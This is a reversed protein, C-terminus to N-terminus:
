KRFSRQIKAKTQLNTTAAFTKSGKPRKVGASSPYYGDCEGLGWNYDESSCNNEGNAYCQDHVYAYCSFKDWHDSNASASAGMAASLAVSGLAMVIARRAGTVIKFTTKM